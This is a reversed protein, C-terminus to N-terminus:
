LICYFNLPKCNMVIAGIKDANVREKSLISLYDELNTDLKVERKIRSFFPEVIKNSKLNPKIREFIVKAVVEYGKEDIHDPHPINNSDIEFCKVKDFPPTNFIESFAMYKEKPLKVFSNWLTQGLFVVIDGENFKTDMLTYLENLDNNLAYGNGPTGCNVVRYALNNENLIRQLFSEITKDDIANAGTATCPGYFYIRNHYTKPANTTVRHGGVINAINGNSFDKFILHDEYKSLISYFNGLYPPKTWKRNVVDKIPGPGTINIFYYDVKNQSLYNFVETALLDAYLQRAFTM